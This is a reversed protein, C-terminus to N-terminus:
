EGTIKKIAEIHDEKIVLFHIGVRYKRLKEDKKVWKVEAFTALQEGKDMTVDLRLVKEVKLEEDCILQMGSTSIDESWVARKQEADPPLKEFEDGAMVKYRVHMKKAARVHRRRELYMDGEPM